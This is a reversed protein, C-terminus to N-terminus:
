IDRNLEDIKHDIDSQLENTYIIMLNHAREGHDIFDRREDIMTQRDYDGGVIVWKSGKTARLILTYYKTNM